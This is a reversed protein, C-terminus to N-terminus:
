CFPDALCAMMIILLLALYGIVLAAVIVLAIKLYKNARLRTRLGDQFSKNNLIREIVVKEISVIQENM